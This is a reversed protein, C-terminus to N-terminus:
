IVMDVMDMDVLEMDVMDMDVTDMDVMAVITWHVNDVMDMDILNLNLNIVNITSTSTLKVSETLTLKTSSPQGNFLQSCVLSCVPHTNSPNSLIM